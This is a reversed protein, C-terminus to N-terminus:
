LHLVKNEQRPHEPHDAAPHVHIERRLVVVAPLPHPVQAAQLPVAVVPLLHHVPAVQHRVAVAPLLHRAQAAQRRVAVPRPDQAPRLVAGAVVALLHGAPVAVRGEARNVGPAQAVAGAQVPVEATKKKMMGTMMMMTKMTTMMMITMTTIMITMMTRMMMATTTIKMTMMMTTVLKATKMAKSMVQVTVKKLLIMMKTTTIGTAAITEPQAAVPIVM